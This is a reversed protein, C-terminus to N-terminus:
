SVFQLGGYSHQHDMTHLTIIQVLNLNSNTALVEGEPYSKIDFVIHRSYRETISTSIVHKRGFQMLHNLTWFESKILINTFVEKQSCFPIYRNSIWHRM